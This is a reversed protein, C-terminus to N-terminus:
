TQLGTRQEAATVAPKWGNIKKMSKMPFFMAEDGDKGSNRKEQNSGKAQFKEV